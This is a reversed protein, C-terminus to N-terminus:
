LVMSKLLRTGMARARRARRTTQCLTLGMHPICCVAVCRPAGVGALAVDFRDDHVDLVLGHRLHAVRAWADVRPVDLGHPGDAVDRRTRTFRPRRACIAPGLAFAFSVYILLLSPTSTTLTTTCSDHCTPSRPATSAARNTATTVAHPCPALWSPPKTRSPARAGSGRFCVRTGTVHARRM